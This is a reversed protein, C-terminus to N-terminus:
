GHLERPHPRTHCHRPGVTWHPLLMQRRASQHPRSRRLSQPSRRLRGSFWDDNWDSDDHLETWRISNEDGDLSLSITVSVETLRIHGKTEQCETIM